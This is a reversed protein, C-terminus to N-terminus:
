RNEKLSVIAGPSSNSQPSRCQRAIAAGPWSMAASINKEFFGAQRDGAISEPL